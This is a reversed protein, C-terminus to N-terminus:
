REEQIELSVEWGFAPDVAARPAAIDRIYGYVAGQQIGVESPQALFLTPERKGIEYVLRACYDYDAQDVFRITVLVGTTPTGVHVFTTGGPSVVQVSPDQPFLTHVAPLRRSLEHALGALIGGFKLVGDPNGADEVEWRVYRGSVANTLRHLVGGAGAVFPSPTGSPFALPWASSSGSASSEYVTSAFNSVTAVRVRFRASASLNTALLAFETLATTAGLDLTITKIGSANSTTAKERLYKSQVRAVPASADFGTGSVSPINGGTEDRAVALALNKALIPNQAM